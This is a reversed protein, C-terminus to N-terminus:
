RFMGLFYRLCGVAVATETRLRTCCLPKLPPQLESPSQLTWAKAFLYWIIHTLALRIIVVCKVSQTYPSPSSSDNPRRVKLAISLSVSRSIRHLPPKWRRGGNREIVRSGGVVRVESSGWGRRQGRRWCREAGRFQRVDIAFHEIEHRERWQWRRREWNVRRCFGGWIGRGSGFRITM